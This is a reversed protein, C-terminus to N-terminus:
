WEIRNRQINDTSVRQTIHMYLHGRVSCEHPHLKYSQCVLRLGLRFGPSPSASTDTHVYGSDDVEVAENTGALTRNVRCWRSDMSHHSAHCASSNSDARCRGVATNNEDSNKRETLVIAWSGSCEAQHFKAPVHIKVVARFGAFKLTM